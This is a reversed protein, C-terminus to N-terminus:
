RKRKTAEKTRKDHLEADRIVKWAFFAVVALGGLMWPLM